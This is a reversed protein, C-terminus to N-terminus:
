PDTPWTLAPVQLLPISGVSLTRDELRLPVDVEPPAGATASPRALLMLVAKAATAAGPGISGHAVLADLTAAYGLIRATGEGAPQMARDLVMRGAAGVALPGWLLSFDRVTLTGGGDRWAGLEVAWAPGSPLPGTLVAALSVLAIERGLAGLGAHAIRISTAHMQLQVAPRAGSVAEATTEIGARGAGAASAALSAEIGLTGARVLDPDLGAPGLRPETASIAISEGAGPGAFLPLAAEIRSAALVIEPSGAIRFRQEGEPLLLLKRPTLVDVSLALRNTRWALGGPVLNQGGSIALGAVIVSASLPWGGLHEAGAAVQWGESRRAAIWGRFVAEVQRAAILWAVSDAAVLIAPTVVLLAFLRRRLSRRM